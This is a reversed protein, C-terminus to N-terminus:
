GLRGELPSTLLSHSHEDVSCKVMGLATAAIREQSLELISEAVISQERREAGTPTWFGPNHLCGSSCSALTRGTSSRFAVM